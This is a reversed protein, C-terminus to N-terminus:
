KISEKVESERFALNSAINSVVLRSGAEGVSLNQSCFIILIAGGFNGWGLANIPPLAVIRVYLRWFDSARDNRNKKGFRGYGSTSKEVSVFKWLGSRHHVSSSVLVVGDAFYDLFVVRGVLVFCPCCVKFRVL